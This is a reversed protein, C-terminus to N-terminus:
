VNNLRFKLMTMMLTKKAQGSTDNSSM